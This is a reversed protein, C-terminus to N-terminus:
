NQIRWSTLKATAPYVPVPRQAKFDAEQGALEDDPLLEYDPSTLNRNRNYLTVKGSFLALVGPKLQSEASYNNFFTIKLTSLGSDDTVVIDQIFGKRERMRRRPQQQLVRALITVDENLPVQDIPTLEGRNLYRRPFYNLLEGVTTLGLHKRVPGASKPSILRDLPLAFEAPGDTARSVASM